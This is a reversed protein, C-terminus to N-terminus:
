TTNTLNELFEPLSGKGYSLLELRVLCLEISEGLTEMDHIISKLATFISSSQYFTYTHNPRIYALQHRLYLICFFNEFAPRWGLACEWDWIGFGFGYDM